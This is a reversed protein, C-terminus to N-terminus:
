LRKMILIQIHFSFNVQTQNFVDVFPQYIFTNPRIFLDGFATGDRIELKSNYELVRSKIFDKVDIAM